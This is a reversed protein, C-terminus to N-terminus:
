KEAEAKEMDWLESYSKFNDPFWFVSTNKYTNEADILVQWKVIKYTLATYMRTGGDKYIGTPIPVFLVMLVCIVLTFVIIRTKKKM